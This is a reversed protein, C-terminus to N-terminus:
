LGQSEEQKISSRKDACANLCCCSSALDESIEVQALMEVVSEKSPDDFQFINNIIEADSAQM